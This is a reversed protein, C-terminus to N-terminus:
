RPCGSDSQSRSASPAEATGDDAHSTAVSQPPSPWGTIEAFVAKLFSTQVKAEHRLRAACTTPSAPAPDPKATEM